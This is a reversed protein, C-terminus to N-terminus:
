ECLNLKFLTSQSKWLKLYLNNKKIIINNKKKKQETQM